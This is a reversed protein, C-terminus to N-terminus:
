GKNRKANVCEEYVMGLKEKWQICDYAWKEYVLAKTKNLMPKYGSIEYLGEATKQCSKNSGKGYKTDGCNTRSAMTKVDFGRIDLGTFASLNMLFDYWNDGNAMDENKVYLVNEMGVIEGLGTTYMAASMSKPPWMWGSEILNHFHEPSRLSSPDVWNGPGTRNDVSAIGWFNYAAWVLSPPDRLMVIFKSRSELVEALFFDTPENIHLCGNVTIKDGAANILNNVERLYKTNNQPFNNRACFEKHTTLPVASRHSALLNYMHSTGAKPMGVVNLAPYTKTSPPPLPYFNAPIGPGGAPQPPPSWFKQPTTLANLDTLLAALLLALVVAGSRLLIRKSIKM